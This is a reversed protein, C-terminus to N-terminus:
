KRLVKNDSREDVKLRRDFKERKSLAVPSAPRSPSTSPSHNAMGPDTTGAESSAHSQRHAHKRRSMSFESPPLNPNSRINYRRFVRSKNTSHIHISVSKSAGSSIYTLIFYSILSHSVYWYQTSQWYTAMSQWYTALLQLLQLPLGVTLSSQWCWLTNGFTTKWITIVFAAQCDFLSDTGVSILSRLPNQILFVQM